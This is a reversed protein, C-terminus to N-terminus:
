GLPFPPVGPWSVGACTQPGEDWIRLNSKGRLAGCCGLSGLVVTGCGEWFGLGVGMIVIGRLGVLFRVWIRPDSGSGRLTGRLRDGCLAWFQLQNGVKVAARWHVIGM